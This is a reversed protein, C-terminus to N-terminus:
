RADARPEVRNEEMRQSARYVDHVDVVAHGEELRVDLRRLPRKPPGYVVDGNEDFLGDHCPCLYRRDEPQWEIRCLQHSCLMSIAVIAGDERRFEVPVGLLERQLRGEDPVEAVPVRLLSDPREPESSGCGAAAFLAPLTLRAAVAAGATRLLGAFWRRRDIPTPM